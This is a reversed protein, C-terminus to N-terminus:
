DNENFQWNKTLLAGGCDGSIFSFIQVKAFSQIEFALFNKDM